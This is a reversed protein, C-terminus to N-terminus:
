VEQLMSNIPNSSFMSKSFFVVCITEVLRHVPISSCFLEFDNSDLM